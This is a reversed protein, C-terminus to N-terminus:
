EDAAPEWGIMFYKFTADDPIQSAEVTVDLKYRLDEPLQKKDITIFINSDKLFIVVSNITTEIDEITYNDKIDKFTSKVTLGKETKYRKDFIQINTIESNPNREDNPSVLMLKAGGKEFIEVEGQTGLADKIPNLKVISDQAFVSDLQKMKIEKTLKGVRDQTILFPDAEKKCQVFLLVTVLTILFTKNM